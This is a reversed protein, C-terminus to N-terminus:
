RKKEDCLYGIPATKHPCKCTCNDPDFVNPKLCKEKKVTCEAKCSTHNKMIFEEKVLSNTNFRKVVVDETKDAICQFINPSAGRYSGSCRHLEVFYPFFTHSPDDVPVATLRPLCAANPTVTM